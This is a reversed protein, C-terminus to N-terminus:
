ISNLLGSTISARQEHEVLHQCEPQRKAANLLQNPYRWVQGHKALQNAAAKRDARDATTPLQQRHELWDARTNKVGAGEIGVWDSHCGPHNRDFLQGGPPDSM